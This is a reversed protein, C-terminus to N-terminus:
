LSFFTPGVGFGPRVSIALGGGRWHLVGDSLHRARNGLCWFGRALVVRKGQMDTVGLDTADWEM